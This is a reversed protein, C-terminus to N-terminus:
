LVRGGEPPWTPMQQTPAPSVPALPAVQVDVTPTKKDIIDALRSIQGNSQDKIQGLRAWLLGGLANMAVVTLAGVATLVTSVDKDYIALIVTSSVLVIFCVAGAWIAHRWLTTKETGTVQSNM